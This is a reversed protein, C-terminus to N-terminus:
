WRATWAMAVAGYGSPIGGVLECEGRPMMRYLYVGSESGDRLAGSVLVFSDDPAERDIVAAVYDADEEPLPTGAFAGWRCDVPGLFAPAM